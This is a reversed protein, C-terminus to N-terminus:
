CLSCRPWSGGCRLFCGGLRVAPRGAPRNVQIATPSTTTTTAVSTMMLTVLPDEDGLSDLKWAVSAAVTLWTVFTGAETKSVTPM